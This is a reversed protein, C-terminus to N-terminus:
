TIITPWARRRATTSLRHRRRAADPWLAGQRRRADLLHQLLAPRPVRRCGQGARRDQRADLCRLPRRGRADGASRAIVSDLWDEGERPFWSSRMWLGTEVFVAGLEDAWDHLPTKRVPQFHHGTFPGALAGFSVPTYYPRFTTTGVEDMSSARRKPWSPSPMSMASSARTPRWAPPPTASPWNSTAIARARPSRCTRPPSMTRTTSSPRARDIGEGVVAAHHPMPRTVANRFPRRGQGEANRGQAGDALCESLLMRGAASGAVIFAPAWM